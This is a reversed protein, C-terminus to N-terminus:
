SLLGEHATQKAIARAIGRGDSFEQAHFAEAGEGAQGVQV